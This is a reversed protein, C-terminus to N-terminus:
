ESGDHGLDYIELNDFYLSSRWSNFAFRDHGPGVLPEPDRYKLYLRGDVFWRVVAGTRTVAMHYVRGVQVADHRKARGAEHEDRRALVSLSNNWGGMVFVYGSEHLRGDGFCEFKIDGADSQSRADFEIRVKEPLPLDLWLPQNREGTTHLWGREVSWHGAQDAKSRHGGGKSRPGEVRGVVWRPGPADRDFRDQFVLRGGTLDEAPSRCSAALGSTILLAALATTHVFRSM